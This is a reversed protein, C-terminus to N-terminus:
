SRGLLRGRSLFPKALESPGSERFRLFRRFGVPRSQQHVSNMGLFQGITELPMESRLRTITGVLIQMHEILDKRLGVAARSLIALYLNDLPAYLETIVNPDIRKGLLIDLRSVPDREQHDGVFRVAAVAWTFLRGSQAVLMDLDPKPPWPLPVWVGLEEPIRSMEAMFYTRIDESIDVQEIDEHLIVVTTQDRRLISMIYPEPRTTVLLRLFPVDACSEVIARFLKTASNDYNSCEDLADVVLLVPQHYDMKRLPELILYKFQTIFSKKVVDPDQLFAKHIEPGLERYSRALQHAISPIFLASDSLESERHSFFFSAGLFGGRGAHEAVTYAITSKGVGALGIVSYIPVTIDSIPRHLWHM